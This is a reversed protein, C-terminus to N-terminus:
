DVVEDARALLLPPVNLGFRRSTSLLEFKTPQVVPLESPKEGGLIRGIYIGAERFVDAQDPGYSLLGGALAFERSNFMAPLTHRAALAALQERSSNFLPDASILLAEAREQTLQTFAHDIDERTRAKVVVIKRDLADAALRANNTDSEANPNNPNVLFGFNAGTILEHLLGLQKAVLLNVMFSVGTVNGGPRNPSAVLGFKVPDGGIVFVIPITRTAAMAAQVAATSGTVSIVAAQRGLLEAILAPMQDYQGEAWRYEVKMNQDDIYGSRALGRLFAAVQRKQNEASAANIFGVVPMAAQQAYSPFPLTGLASGAVIQIFKRRKVMAGSAQSLPINGIWVVERSPTPRFVCIDVTHWYRFDRWKDLQRTPELCM